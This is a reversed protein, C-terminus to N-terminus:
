LAPRMLGGMTKRLVQRSGRIMPESGREPALAGLLFSPSATIEQGGRSLGVPCTLLQLLPRVGAWGLRVVGGMGWRDSWEGYALRNEMVWGEPRGCGYGRRERRHPSGSGELAKLLIPAPTITPLAAPSRPELRSMLDLQDCQSRGGKPNPPLCCPSSTYQCWYPHSPFGDGQINWGQGETQQWGGSGPLPLALSAQGRCTALGRPRTCGPCPPLSSCGWARSPHQSSQLLTLEPLLPSRM